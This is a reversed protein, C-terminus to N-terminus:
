TMIKIDGTYPHYSKKILTFDKPDTEGLDFFEVNKCFLNKILINSSYNVGM